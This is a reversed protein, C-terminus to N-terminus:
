EIVPHLLEWTFGGDSTSVLSLPRDADYISGEWAIAWGRLHDVFHLEGDWAVTRLTKWTRGADATQFLRGSDYDLLWGIRGTIFDTSLSRDPRGAIPLPESLWSYGMDPSLYVQSTWKEQPEVQQRLQEPCWVILKLWGGPIQELQYGGSCQAGVRSIYFESGVPVGPETFWYGGGDETHLVNSWEAQDSTNLLWGQERNQFVLGEFGFVSSAQVFEWSGGGNETRLLVTDGAMMTSPVETIALIWGHLPDSFDIALPLYGSVWPGYDSLAWIDLPESAMWTRGGDQTRWVMMSGLDAPASFTVWARDLDYAFLEAIQKRGYAHSALYEQTPAPDKSPTVDRWTKGGDDTVLVRQFRDGEASGLAWGQQADIMFLDAIELETGSRLIPDPIPTPEPTPTPATSAPPATPTPTAPILQAVSEFPVGGINMLRIEDGSLYWPEGAAASKLDVVGTGGVSGSFLLGGSDWWWALDNVRLDSELWLDGEATYIKLETAYFGGAPGFALWSGDPSPYPLGREEPFVRLISGERDILRTGSLNEVAFAQIRPFWRAEGLEHDFSLVTPVQRGQTSLDLLEVNFKGAQETKTILIRRGEPDVAASVLPGNALERSNGDPTVMRIGMLSGDPSVSSIVLENSSLWGMIQIPYADDLETVLNSTGLVFDVFGLGTPTYGRAGFDVGSVYALYRGDPSWGLPLTHRGPPTVRLIDGQREDWLYASVWEDDLAAAFALVPRSPAWVTRAWRSTVIQHQELPYMETQTLPPFLGENLLWIEQVPHIDPLRDVDIFEEKSRLAILGQSSLKGDLDVPAGWMWDLALISEEEGSAINLLRIARYDRAAILLTGADTGQAATSQPEGNVATDSGDNLPATPELLERTPTPTSTSTASQPMGTPRNQVPEAAPSACAALACFIALILLLLRTVGGSGSNQIAIM